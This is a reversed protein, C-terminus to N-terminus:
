KKGPLCTSKGCRTDLAFWTAIEVPGDKPRRHMCGLYVGPSVERVEDRYRKCMLSTDEYDFVLTPGGDIYSVGDSIAAKISPVGFQRNVMLGNGPIYKGQWATLKMLKSVPVTVKSGPKYIVLGPTYGCPVPSVTGCKYVEVLEGENMRLLQEPEYTPTAAVVLRPGTPIPAAPLVTVSVPDAMPAPKGVEPKAPPPEKPLPPQAVVAATLLGVWGLAALNRM